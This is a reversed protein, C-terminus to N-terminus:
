GFFGGCFLCGFLCLLREVAFEPSGTLKGYEGTFGADAFAQECGLDGLDDGATSLVRDVAQRRNGFREADDVEVEFAQRGLEAPEIGAPGIGLEFYTSSYLNEPRKRRARRSM